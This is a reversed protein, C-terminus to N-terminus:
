SFPSVTGILDIMPLILEIILSVGGDLASILLKETFGLLPSSSTCKLRLSTSFTSLYSGDATVCRFYNLLNRKASGVPLFLKSIKSHNFAFSGVTLNTGGRIVEKQAVIAM